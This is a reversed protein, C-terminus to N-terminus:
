PAAGGRGGAPLDKQTVVSLDAAKLQYVTSGKLVYVSDGSAAIAGGGDAMMSMRGPRGAQLRAAPDGPATPPTDQAAAVNWQCYGVIGLGLLAVLGVGYTKKSETRM